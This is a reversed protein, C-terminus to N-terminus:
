VSATERTDRPGPGFWQLLTSIGRSIIWDSWIADDRVNNM